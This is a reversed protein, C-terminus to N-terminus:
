PMLNGLISAVGGQAIVHTLSLSFFKGLNKKWFVLLSCSTTPWFFFQPNQTSSYWTNYCVCKTDSVIGLYSWVYLCSEVVCLILLIELFHLTQSHITFLQSFLKKKRLTWHLTNLSHTLILLKNHSYIVYYVQPCINDGFINFHHRPM